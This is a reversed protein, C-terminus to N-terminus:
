QLTSLYRILLLMVVWVCFILIFMYLLYRFYGFIESIYKAPKVHLGNIYIMQTISLVLLIYTFVVLGQVILPIPTWDNESMNFRVYTSSHRPLPEELVMVPNESDIYSLYIHKGEHDVEVWTHETGMVVYADYGRKILMTGMLVAKGDCDDAGKSIVESPKALHDLSYYVSFDSKYMIKYTIFCYIDHFITVDDSFCPEILGDAINRNFFIFENELDMLENDDIELLDSPNIRREVQEPWATPNLNGGTGIIFIVLVLSIIASRFFIKKWGELKIQDCRRIRKEGTSRM